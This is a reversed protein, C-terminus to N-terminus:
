LIPIFDQAPWCITCLSWVTRNQNTIIRAALNIPQAVNSLLKRVIRALQDPETQVPSKTESRLGIRQLAASSRLGLLFAARCHRGVLTAVFKM